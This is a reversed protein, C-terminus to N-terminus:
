AIKNQKWTHKLYVYFFPQVLSLNLRYRKIGLVCFFIRCLSSLFAKGFVWRMVSRFLIWFSILIWILSPFCKEINADYMLRALFRPSGPPTLNKEFIERCIQSFWSLNWFNEEFIGNKSAGMGGMGGLSMHNAKTRFTEPRQVNEFFFFM